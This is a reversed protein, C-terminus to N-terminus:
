QEAETEARGPALAIEMARSLNEKTPEIGQEQFRALLKYKTLTKEVRNRIKLISPAERVATDGDFWDLLQNAQELSLNLVVRQDKGTDKQQTM